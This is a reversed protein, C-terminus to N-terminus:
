YQNQENYSKKIMSTGNYYDKIDTIGDHTHSWRSLKMM